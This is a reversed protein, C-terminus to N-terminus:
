CLPITFTFSTGEGKASRFYIEGGHAEVISKCISLGLGSGEASHAADRIDSRGKYYRDFLFPMDAAHIGEGTDSVSILLRTEDKDVRVRIADGAKTHKLANFVLNGAVQELRNADAKILVDPPNAPGDYRVGASRAFHELPAFIRELLGKSYQERLEVTIQGLENLAHLLLDETLGAMKRTHSRMVRIYDALTDADECVGDAIADLYAQVAALPTKLEHSINSVLEKQSRALRERRENLHKLELRLMDLSAYLEGLEDPQGYPVPQTYDGKLMAEALRKMDGAPTLVGRKLKSRLLVVLLVALGAAAALMAYPLARDPRAAPEVAEPPLTFLAHGTQLGTRGDVVPFAIRYEGGLERAAYLDYHLETRVDIAAVEPVDADGAPYNFAVTGDLRVAAVRIRADPSLAALRERLGDIRESASASEPALAAALLEAESEIALLMDNVALRAKNVALQEGDEAKQGGILAFVAGAALLLAAGAAATWRNIWQKLM